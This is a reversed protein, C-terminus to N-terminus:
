KTLDIEASELKLAGGQRKFLWNHRNVDKGSIKNKSSAAYSYSKVLQNKAQEDPTPVVTLDFVVNNPDIDPVTIKVIKQVEAPLKEFPLNTKEVTASQPSNGVKANSKEKADVPKTADFCLEQPVNVGGRLNQVRTKSCESLTQAAQPTPASAATNVSENTASPSPANSNVCWWSQIAVFVILFVKTIM